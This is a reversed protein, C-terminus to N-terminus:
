LLLLLQELMNKPMYTGTPNNPSCIYILKTHETVASLINQINFSFDKELPVKVIKAGMLHAGFDYKFSPSPVIIEDGAELFTESIL